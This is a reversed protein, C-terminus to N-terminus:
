STVHNDWNDQIACAEYLEDYDKMRSFPHGQFTKNDKSWKEHYYNYFDVMGQRVIDIGIHSQRLELYNAEVLEVLLKGLSSHTEYHKDIDLSQIFKQITEKQGFWYVDNAFYNGAEDTINDISNPSYLCNEELDIIGRNDWLNMHTSFDSSHYISDLRFIYINTYKDFYNGIMELGKKWHYIMNQTNNHWKAISPAIHCHVPNLNQFNSYNIDNIHTTYRQYYHDSAKHSQPLNKIEWEVDSLISNEKKELWHVRSETSTDWTSVYVDINRPINMWKSATEFTRYEGYLLLAHNM